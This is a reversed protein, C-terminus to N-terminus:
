PLNPDGYQVKPDNPAWTTTLPICHNTGAHDTATATELLELMTNKQFVYYATRYLTDIIPEGHPGIIGTNCQGINTKTQIVACHGSSDVTCPQSPAVPLPPVKFKTNLARSRSSSSDLSLDIGELGQQDNPDDFYIGSGSDNEIGPGQWLGSSLYKITCSASQNPIALLEACARGDCCQGLTRRGYRFLIIRM